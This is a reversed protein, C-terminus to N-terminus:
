EKTDKDQTQKHESDNQKILFIRMAIVAFLGICMFVIFEINLQEWEINM